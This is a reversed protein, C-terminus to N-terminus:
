IVSDNLMQRPPLHMRLWFLNSLTKLQLTKPVTSKDDDEDKAKPKLDRKSRRTKKNSEREQRLEDKRKKWASHDHPHPMYCGSGHDDCWVHKAGTIPHNSYQSTKKFQWESIKKVQAKKDGLDTALSVKKQNTQNADIQKQM